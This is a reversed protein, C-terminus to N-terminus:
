QLYQQNGYQQQFQQQTYGGYPLQNYNPVPFPGQHAIPTPDPVPPATPRTDTSTYSAAQYYYSHGTPARHESWGIPLPPLVPPPRSYPSNLPRTLLNYAM